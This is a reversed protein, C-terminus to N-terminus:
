ISIIYKNITIVYGIDPRSVVFARLIERLDESFPSNEKFLGLYPFTREIDLDIYSITNEKNIININYKQINSNCDYPFPTYNSDINENLNLEKEKNFNL